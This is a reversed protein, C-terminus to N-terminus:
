RTGSSFALLFNRLDKEPFLFSSYERSDLVTAARLRRRSAELKDATKRREDAVLPQLTANAERIAHCRERASTRTAATATCRAKEALARRAAAVAADEGNLKQADIFIEPHHTLQWLRQELEHPDDVPGHPRAIPLRRTATVIGFGPPEFGFFRRIIEDTLEDYKGGGIGHLFLDGLVLRAYMTTLLARSRLRIGRAEADAWADKASDLPGEAGLPLRLRVDGRDTLELDCGVRRAFLRRRRPQESTWIWLPAELWESDKTLEPVPHNASRIHERHRYDLLATNHADYFRPLDALLHLAFRRFSPTACIRSQPYELTKLGWSGELRHRANAIAAGLTKTRRSEAVVSPWFEALLPNVIFPRLVDCARNGFSRFLEGDVIKREEFPIEEMAADFHVAEVRPEDVSGSPVRLSPGKLTDGDVILNIATAGVSKALGALAFNKSWVGPHFLEPQHGALVLAPLSQAVPVDAVDRYARTYALAEVILAKRAESALKALSVGSFDFVRSSAAARNQEFL